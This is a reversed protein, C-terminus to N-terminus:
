REQYVVFLYGALLVLPLGICGLWNPATNVCSGAGFVFGAFRQRVSCFRVSPSWLRFNTQRPHTETTSTNLLLSVEFATQVNGITWRTRQKIHGSLTDPMEGYQLYEDIYAVSWGKRFLLSSCATDKRISYTLFGGVDEIAERRALYGSGICDGVGLRDHILETVAYFYDLDQRVTDDHPINWFYQPACAMSMKPENLHSMMARLWNPQVMMDADLGAVFASPSETLKVSFKLGNNLNGAKYDPVEPKERSTYHAQPYERSVHLM